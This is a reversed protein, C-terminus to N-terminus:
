SSYKKFTTQYEDKLNQIFYKTQTNMISWYLLPYMTGGEFLSAFSKAYNDRFSKWDKLSQNFLKINGVVIESNKRRMINKILKITSDLEEQSKVYQEHAWKNMGQQYWPVYNATLKEVVFNAAELFIKHNQFDSIIKAKKLNVNLAFEHSLVHRIEFNDNVSKIITGFRRKINSNQLNFYADKYNYNKVQDLFDIDLINKLTKNIDDLNNLQILHSIIEGVTVKKGHLATLYDLDFKFNNLSKAYSIANALYTENTDILEKYIYRFFSDTIAIIAIPFYRIIEENDALTSDKLKYILEDLELIRSSFGYKSSYNSRYNKSEIEEIINRKKSM